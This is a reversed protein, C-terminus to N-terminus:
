YCTPPVPLPMSPPPHSPPGNASLLPMSTQTRLTPRASYTASPGEPISTPTASRMRAYERSSSVFPTRDTRIQMSAPRRLGTPKPKPQQEPLAQLQAPFSLSELEVTPTRHGESITTPLPNPMSSLRRPIAEDPIRIPVPRFYPKRAPDRKDTPQSPRTQDPVTSSQRRPFDTRVEGPVAPLPKNEMSRQNHLPRFNAPSIDRKLSERNSMASVSRPQLPRPREHTIASYTSHRQTRTVTESTRMSPHPQKTLSSQMVSQRSNAAPATRTYSRFKSSEHLPELDLKPLYDSQPESPTPSTDRSTTLGPTGTDSTKSSALSLRNSDERLRDLTSQDNSRLTTAVSPAETSQRQSVHNRGLPPISEVQPIAPRTQPSENIERLRVDTSRIMSNRVPLNTVKKPDRLVQFRHTPKVEPEKKLNADRDHSPRPTEEIREGGLLGITHRVTKMWGDMEEPTECVLLIHNSEKKSTPSPMRLRSLLSRPQHRAPLGDSANISQAIQLVWHKGPVLDSAFAASAKSLQLCREPLRDAAGDAAYQLVHGSTTLIFIKANGGVSHTSVRHNSLSSQRGSNPSTLDLQSGIMEQLSNMHRNHKVPLAHPAQMVAHKTAQPYAQFLPPPEWAETHRSLLTSNRRLTARQAMEASKQRDRSPRGSTM